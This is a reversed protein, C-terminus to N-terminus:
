QSNDPEEKRPFLEERRRDMEEQILEGLNSSATGQDSIYKDIEAKEAKDKLRKISLGIKREAADVHLIVASVTEGVKVVDSPKEVKERSLESVHILGEIGEELELFVGFDTLNTV